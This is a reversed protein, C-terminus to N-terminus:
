EGGLAADIEARRRVLEERVKAVYAVLSATPVKAPDPFGFGNHCARCVGSAASTEKGCRTCYGDRPKAPVARLKVPEIV